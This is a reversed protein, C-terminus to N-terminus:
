KKFIENVKTQSAFQSFQGHGHREEGPLVFHGGHYLLHHQDVDISRCHRPDLRDPDSTESRVKFRLVGNSSCGSCSGSSRNGIACDVRLDFLISIAPNEM